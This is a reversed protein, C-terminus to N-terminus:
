GTSLRVLCNNNFHTKTTGLCHIYILYHFEVDILALMTNIYVPAISVAVNTVLTSFPHARPRLMILILRPQGGIGVIDQFLGM